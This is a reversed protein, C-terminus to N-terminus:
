ASTSNREEVEPIRRIREDTFIDSEDRSKTSFESIIAGESGAQFWHNRDPHMTYQEGENLIIEHFVTVPTPPLKAKIATRDGKGDVYLYCTGRRVRFTEEKGVYPVGNEIGNAHRHEPCTQFPKLVMEKACCRETNIYVLLQLGVEGLMGLGFDAVEIRGREEPTIVIGAKEFVGAVYEVAEEYEEKTIM